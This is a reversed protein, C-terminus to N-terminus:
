KSQNHDLNYHVRYRILIKEKPRPYKFYSLEITERTTENLIDIKSKQVFTMDSISGNPHLYFEIVNKDNSRVDPPIRSLGYRDLVTQTIRRILRYNKHLYEKQIESFQTYEDKYLSFISAKEMYENAKEPDKEVGIGIKYMTALSSCGSASGNNCSESYRIAASTLAETFDSQNTESNSAENAYSNFSLFVFLLTLVIM